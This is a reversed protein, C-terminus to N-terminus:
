RRRRRLGLLALGVFGLSAPEPVPLVPPPEEFM